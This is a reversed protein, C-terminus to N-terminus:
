LKPVPAAAIGERELAYAARLALDECWPAAIIQIGLPLGGARAIPAAVIPLGIFSLPQTYIGLNARLNVKAGGIVMSEQGIPPAVDPACPALIVDADRFLALVQERYWSRFRQAAIVWAAPILAGAILRDRTAPDFEAARTKLDPLHLVGGEAATILFASARARAAEPIEVSRVAKLAKAAISLIERLEPNEPTFYGGAVAV